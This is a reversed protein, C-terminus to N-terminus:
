PQGKPIFYLDKIPLTIFDEPDNFRDGDILDLNQDDLPATLCFCRRHDCKGTSNGLFGLELPDNFLARLKPNILDDRHARGPCLDDNLFVPHFALAVTVLGDRDVGRFLRRTRRDRDHM